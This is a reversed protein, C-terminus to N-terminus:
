SEAGAPQAKPKRRFVHRLDDMFTYVVPIVVLTLLTSTILGGIVATAMPARIESGKSLALAVPLMGFIMAFTTMLIPRLRVSGAEVLADTRSMGKAINQNTRDVLLIANKTVLGMLMIIGLMSIISLSYGSILLAGFAGIVSFPLSIMITFPHIFSEFQSALIVYVLIIALVLATIMDVFSKAMYKAQGEFATTVGPPLEKKATDNIIKVADSMPLGELNAFITVQRQRDQREIQTPGKGPTVTVVDALSVLSGTMSRVKILDLDAANTRRAEPLWVRIDYRDEGQAMEGVKQSSVLYRVAVAVQAAKVGLRAAKERDVRIRLEEKGERVTSDVDVFGKTKKMVDAIRLAAKEMAPLDQGRLCFQIAQSHGGSASGMDNAESVSVIAGPMKALKQRAIEMMQQQTYPRKNAPMLKVYLSGQNVIEQQGGGISTAILEVGPLKSVIGEVVACLQRTHELSSGPPTEVIVQFREEDQTPMFESPVLGAAFLSLVLLVVAIIVVRVRHKLALSVLRSYGADLGKLLREIAVYFFNHSPRHRVFRSALMPTLSFSVFLSIVVTAAVTIGFQYFILGAIGPMFAVPVFVAVITSTTAIVALGIEQTAVKAAVMPDEGREVHRFINEIVVIADDVVIGVALTMGLMTMYNITFHLARFVSFVGIMSIPIALASIVTMQRNRLFLYIILVALLAGYSLDFTADKIAERIFKANDGVAKLEVGRPFAPRLQDLIKMVKDSTQVINQGSQKLVQVLVSPKGNVAAFSRSDKETDVVRAIDRVFVPAGNFRALEIGGIERTERVQNDVRLSLERSGRNFRGGPLEINEAGLVGIVDDIALGAASMAAPDILLHVERPRDGILQVQGVGGAREINQKIVKDAFKSLAVPSMDAPGTISFTLIPLASFDFKQILPDEIDLPMDPRVLAVKDRVDQLVREVDVGLEFQVMVTSVNENSYSRLMEINPLTNVAEEIKRSVKEEVATPDAGPYVTTITVVPFQIDPMLDIGISPLSNIGFVVIVLIMMTAFVPRAISVDALKM